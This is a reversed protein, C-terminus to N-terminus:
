KPMVGTATARSALARADPLADVLVKQQRDVVFARSDRGLVALGHELRETPQLCRSAASRAAGSQAEGDRAAQDFGMAAGQRDLLRWRSAGPDGDPQRQKLRVSTASAASRLM